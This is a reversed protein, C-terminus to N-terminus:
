GERRRTRMTLTTRRANADYVADALADLDDGEIGRFVALARIFDPVSLQATSRLICGIAPEVGTEMAIRNRIDEATQVQAKDALGLKVLLRGFDGSVMEVEPLESTQLVTPPFVGAEVAAELFSRLDTYELATGAAFAELQKRVPLSQVSSLMHDLLSWDLGPIELARVRLLDNLHHYFTDRSVGRAEYAKAVAPIDLTPAM